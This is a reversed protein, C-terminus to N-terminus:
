RRSIENVEAPLAAYSGAGITSKGAETQTCGNHFPIAEVKIFSKVASGKQRTNAQEQATSWSQIGGGAPRSARRDAQRRM